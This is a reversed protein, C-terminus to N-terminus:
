LEVSEVYSWQPKLWRGRRRRRRLFGTALALISGRGGAEGCVCEQITLADFGVVAM